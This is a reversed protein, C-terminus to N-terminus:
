DEDQNRHRHPWSRLLCRVPFLVMLCSAKWLGNLHVLVFATKKRATERGDLEEWIWGRM